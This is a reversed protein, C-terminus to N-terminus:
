KILVATMMGFAGTDREVHNLIHCHWVWATGAPKNAHVLVTYREGPSVLQTDTWYPQDLPFGDKEIVLQDLGHLHMPHIQGGENYYHAVFWEGQKIEIPDTGPFSKGNLSYGIAGSDNLVMPFELAPKLSAPITVGGVTKGLPLKTEGVILAGFLGNPLQLQGHHHPHYMAIAPRDATFQYTYSQGPQILPQTLPSVGDQDFPVDAGHMHLDTGMPLKNVVVVRVKDGVNVKIEPGPVMGNYAWAKVKNGPEIEWDIIEATLTFQKYGDSTITPQLLQNGSLKGHAEPTLYKAISAQMADDLKKYDIDTGSHSGDTGSSATSTGATAGEKVNLTAKMGADAHGPITCLVTYTGAKLNAALTASKGSAINPTTGDGQIAFNHETTGANSVNFTVNGPAVTLDGAISFEKLTVNSTSAKTAAAGGGGSKDRTAAVIGVAALPAVLALIAAIVVGGVFRASAREEGNM